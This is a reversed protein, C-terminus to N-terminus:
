SATFFSENLGNPPSQSLFINVTKTILKENRIGGKKIQRWYVPTLLVKLSIHLLLLKNQENM